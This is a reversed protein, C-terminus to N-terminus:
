LKVKGIITYSAEFRLFYASSRVSYFDGPALREWLVHAKWNPSRTYDIRIQPLYGRNTGTGFTASSGPFPHSANMWYNTFRVSVSKVPSYVMETQWMRTNTWYSPGRERFQSYIYLESYKPWRSFLPDWDEIKNPTSPDDGSMGVYGGQVYNRDGNGYTKKVYAYGGRGSVTYNPHQAGWQFAMEGTFSWGDPYRQVVRGGATSIHRDGQFQYNTAPRPDGTEKKYFYYAEVSADKMNNDTYYVGLAQENWDVLEKSRDHIKPLYRDTRPDSIGILELKSKKRTYGLVAANFYVTRSGDWPTGEFLLFGEGRNLNQRGVKLSLGNVFLKKIDLNFTDFVVEDFQFPRDPTIIQNTEQNLGINFDVNSGLPAKMWLRTRYRVQVRQDDLGSNYDFLNNWDENRVRQEFGFDLTPVANTQSSLRLAFILAV